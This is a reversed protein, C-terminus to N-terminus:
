RPRGAAGPRTQWPHPGDPPRYEVGLADLRPLHHTNLRREFDTVDRHTRESWMVEAFACLRPFTAYDVRRPSDLHETWVQAQAGLVHAAAEDSLGAPVPEYEYVDTLTRLFGVPIPEDPHDSQRHDLYVSQEPCMVADHGARAAREGGREGQWSAVITGPPLHGGADLIEDWGMARRGRSHLHEIVQRLFWGHLARPEDLGLEAARRRARPSDEWETAPVEDGGVCVVPAPFLELIRDLVALFFDVTAPEANLVHESVGWRDWVPLRRDPHNGLWPYAAIAAQSHGPVDVEPVVTVHHEAAYSVIEALDAGTYHGGHPRDDYTDTAGRGVMSRHRWGGVETLKPYRPVEVRWGQDDTLHLHLVNLKHAALLDVFRLVERKPLFHRAVDLHCGRWSFRPHDTVTGRPVWWEGSVPAQRLADAGLLQRLTQAAYHAGPEDHATVTVGSETIEMRYGEPGPVAGSDIRFGVDPARHPPLALGTTTGLRRRLWEVVKPPGDMTTREGLPFVGPRPEVSVPRPLLGDWRSAATSSM